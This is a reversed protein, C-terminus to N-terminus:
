NLDDVIDAPVAEYTRELTQAARYAPLVVAVKKGHLM